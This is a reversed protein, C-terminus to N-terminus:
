RGTTPPTCCIDRRAALGLWLVVLKASGKIIWPPGRSIGEAVNVAFGLVALRTNRQLLDSDEFM